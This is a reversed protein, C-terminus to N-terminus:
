TFLVKIKSAILQSVASIIISYFYYLYAEYYIKVTM